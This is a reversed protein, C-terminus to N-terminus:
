HRLDLDTNRPSPSTKNHAKIMEFADNTSGSPIFSARSRCRTSYMSGMIMTRGNHTTDKNKHGIIELVPLEIAEILHVTDMVITSKYLQFDKIRRTTYRMKRFEISVPEHDEISDKLMVKYSGDMDTRVTAIISDGKRISVMVLHIPEETGSSAVIGSISVSKLYKRTVGDSNKGQNLTSKVQARVKNFFLFLIGIFVAARRYYRLALVYRKSATVPIPRDLIDSHMRVCANGKQKMYVEFIEEPTLNTADVVTKSCHTCHRGKDKPEMSDWNANCPKAITIVIEEPKIM